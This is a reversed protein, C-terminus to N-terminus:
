SLQVRGSTTVTITRNNEEDGDGIVITVPAMGPDLRGSTDFEVDTDADVFSVGSPLFRTTGVSEDDVDVIQYSGADPEFHVRLIQNKGVAQVRAARIVSVVEQGATIVSYRKMAAAVAPVSIGALVAVL